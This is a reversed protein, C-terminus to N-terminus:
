FSIRYLFLHPVAKATDQQIRISGGRISEIWFRFHSASTQVSPTGNESIEAEGACSHRGQFGGTKQRMFVAVIKEYRVTISAYFHSNVDM